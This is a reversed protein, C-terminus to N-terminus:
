GTIYLYDNYFVTLLHIPILTKILHSLASYHVFNISNKLRKTRISM